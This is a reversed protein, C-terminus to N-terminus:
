NTEKDSKAKQGDNSSKSLSAPPPAPHEPPLPDGLENLAPEKVPEYNGHPLEGERVSLLYGTDKDRVRIFEPM